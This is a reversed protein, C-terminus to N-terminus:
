LKMRMLQEQTIEPAVMRSQLQERSLYNQKLDSMKGDRKNEDFLSSYFSPTSHNGSSIDSYRKIYGADNSYELCNYKMIDKANKTMYQRYQWNTEVNVSKKLHENMVAEPQWSATITRGDSMLPPFGAYKNNAHYGLKSQPITEKVKSYASNYNEVSFM